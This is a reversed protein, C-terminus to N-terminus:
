PWLEGEEKFSYYKGDGIIIHDLLEIGIIKGSEYVKKTIEIDYRSPHPDGSPHNHFIIISSALNSIAEKFIERPHAMSTSIDGTFIIKEKKIRNKTDLILMGFNEKKESFYRPILYDAIEVPNKYSIEKEPKRLIRKAIEFSALIQATKAKGIGKLKSLEEFSLKILGKLGKNESLIEKALDLASSEKTGTRLIIALLESDSLTSAGYKEIRERPREEPPLDKIKLLKNKM